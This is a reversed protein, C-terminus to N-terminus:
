TTSPAPSEQAAARYGHGCRVCHQAYPSTIPAGCHPCADLLQTGDNACYREGSAAPVARFCHPCLRYRLPPANM